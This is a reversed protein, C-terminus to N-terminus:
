SGVSDNLWVADGDTWVNKYPDWISHQVICQWNPLFVGFSGRGRLVADGGASSCFRAVAIPLMCLFNPLSRAHPLCSRPCVSVCVHEICYKAVVGAPSTFIWLLHKLEICRQFICYCTCGVLVVSLLRRFLYCMM